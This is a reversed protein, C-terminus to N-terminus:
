AKQGYDVEGEPGTTQPPPSSWGTPPCPCSFVTRQICSCAALFHFRQTIPSVIFIFIFVCQKVRCLRWIYGARSKSDSCTTSINGKQVCTKDPINAKRKWEWAYCKWVIIRRKKTVQQLLLTGRLSFVHVREGSRDRPGSKGNRNEREQLFCLPLLNKGDIVAVFISDQELLFCFFLRLLESRM